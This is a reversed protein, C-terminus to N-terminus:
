AGLVEAVEDAVREGSEVAGNMWGFWRSATETSAWHLRGVPAKLSPRVAHVAGAAAGVPMGTRSPSSCGIRTSLNSRNTRKRGFFAAYAELVARRRTDVDGLVDSTVGMLSREPLPFLFTVLLGRSGDPPSNDFTVPAAGLGSVCIGNLGEALLAARVGGSVQDGLGPANSTSSSGVPPLDPVFAISRCDAPSMAVICRKAVVTLGEAEVIVDQNPQHAVKRVPANLHVGGGLREALRVSIEHSGGEFRFQEGQLQQEWGGCAACYFLAHLLSVRELPICLVMNLWIEFARRAEPDTLNADLWSAVTERDLVQANAAGRLM